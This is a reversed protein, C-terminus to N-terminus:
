IIKKKIIKIYDGYKKLDKLLYAIKAPNNFESQLSVIRTQDGINKISFQLIPIRLETFITMIDVMSGYQDSIGLDVEVIYFQNEEGVRHAEMLRDFSITRMAKCDM